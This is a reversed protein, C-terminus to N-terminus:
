VSLRVVVQVDPVEVLLQPVLVRDLQAVGPHLFRQLSGPQHGLPVLPSRVPPPPRSPRQRPHQQVDVAALMAPQVVIAPIVQDHNQVVGGALDVVRLQHLLFRRPRHHGAQALHDFRLAQEAGQVAVPPTVKEHRHLLALLHILVTQRLNPPRHLLQSYLHNRRIRRLRPAPRLATKSGPLPAQRLFEPQGPDRVTSPALANRRSRYMPSNLPLNLAGAASFPVANRRVLRLSRFQIKVTCVSRTTSLSLVTAMRSRDHCISLVRNRLVKAPLM